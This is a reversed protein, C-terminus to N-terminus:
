KFSSKPHPSVKVSRGDIYKKINTYLEKLIHKNDFLLTRDINKITKQKGKTGRMVKNTNRTSGTVISIMNYAEPLDQNYSIHLIKTQSSYLIQINLKKKFLKTSVGEIVTSLTPYIYVRDSGKYYPNNRINHKRIVYRLAFLSGSMLFLSLSLSLSAPDVGGYQPTRKTKRKYQGEISNLSARLSEQQKAIAFEKANAEEEVKILSMYIDYNMWMPETISLRHLRSSTFIPSYILSTSNISVAEAYHSYAEEEEKSVWQQGTQRRRENESVYLAYANLAARNESDTAERIFGYKSSMWSKLEERIKDNIVDDSVDEVLGDGDRLIIDVNDREYIVKKKFHIPKDYADAYEHINDIIFQYQLSLILKHGVAMNYELEDIHKKLNNLLKKVDKEPSSSSSLEQQTRTQRRKRLNELLKSFCTDWDSKLDPYVVEKEIGYIFSNLLIVRGENDIRYLKRYHENIYNDILKTSTRGDSKVIYLVYDIIFILM